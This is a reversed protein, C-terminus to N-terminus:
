LVAEMEPTLREGENLNRLRRLLAKEIAEESCFILNLGFEEPWISFRDCDRRLGHVAEELTEGERWLRNLECENLLGRLYEKEELKSIDLEEGWDDEYKRIEKRLANSFYPQLYAMAAQGVLEKIRNMMMLQLEITGFYEAREEPRVTTVVEDVAQKICNYTRLFELVPRLPTRIYTHEPLAYDEVPVLGIRTHLYDDVIKEEHRVLLPKIKLDEGRGAEIIAAVMEPTREEGHWYNVARDILLKRIEDSPVIELNLGAGESCEPLFECGKRIVEVTEDVTQGPRWLSGLEHGYLLGGLYTKWEYEAPDVEVDWYGANPLLEKRLTESYFPLLASYYSADLLNEIAAELDSEPLLSREEATMFEQLLQLVKDKGPYTQLFDATKRDSEWDPYIENYFDPNTAQGVRQCLYDHFIQEPARM